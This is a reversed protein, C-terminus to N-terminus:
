NSIKLNITDLYDIIHLKNKDYYNKVLKIIV